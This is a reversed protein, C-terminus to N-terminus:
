IVNEGQVREKNMLDWYYSSCFRNEGQLLLLYEKEQLEKELLLQERRRHGFGECAQHREEM